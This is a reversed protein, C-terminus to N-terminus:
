NYKPSEKSLISQQIHRYNYLLAVCRHFITAICGPEFFGQM